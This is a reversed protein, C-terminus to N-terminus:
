HSHARAGGSPHSPEHVASGDHACPDVHVIVTTLKPVALIMARQVDEAIRHGEAVSLERDVTVRAEAHITHGIWRPRVLSVGEVASAASEAAELVEADVADLLRRRMQVAASKLVFLIAVTIAIGILPDAQGIGVWVGLAGVLM